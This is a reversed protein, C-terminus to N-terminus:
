QESAPKEDRHEVTIPSEFTDSWARAGSEAEERTKYPGSYGGRREMAEFDSWWIGFTGFGTPAIVAKGPHEDTPWTTGM